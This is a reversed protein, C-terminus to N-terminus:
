IWWCSGRFHLTKQIECIGWLVHKIHRTASGNTIHADFVTIAPVSSVIAASMYEHQQPDCVMGVNELYKSM